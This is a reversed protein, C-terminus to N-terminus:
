IFKQLQYTKIKKIDTDQLIISRDEILMEEKQAQLHKLAM